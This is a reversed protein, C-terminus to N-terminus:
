KTINKGRIESILEVLMDLEKENLGTRLVTDIGSKRAQRDSFITVSPTQLNDYTRTLSGNQCALIKALKPVSDEVILKEGSTDQFTFTACYNLDEPKGGSYFERKFVLGKM